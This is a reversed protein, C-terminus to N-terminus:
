RMLSGPKGGRHVPPRYARDVAPEAVFADIEAFPLALRAARGAFRGRDECTPGLTRIAKGGAAFDHSGDTGSLRLWIQRCHSLNDLCHM